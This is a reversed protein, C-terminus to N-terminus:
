LGRPLNQHMRKNAKAIKRQKIIPYTLSLLGFIVTLIIGAIGVPIGWTNKKKLEEIEANQHRIIEKIQSILDYSSNERNSSSLEKEINKIM